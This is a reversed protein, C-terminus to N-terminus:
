AAIPLWNASQTDNVPTWNPNKILPASGTIGIAGTALTIRRDVAVTPTRGLLTVARTGPEKVSERVIVVPASGVLVAGGTPTVVEERVLTPAAGTVNLAGADPIIAVALEPAYGQLSAVGSETAIATGRDISPAAGALSAAGTQTQQVSSVYVGPVQGAIVADNAAPERRFDTITVPIVGSIALEGTGPVIGLGDVLSPAAGVAALAGTSPIIVTGDVLSPFQNAADWGGDGGWAGLGWSHDFTLSGSLPTILTSTAPVVTPAAGAFALNDPDGAYVAFAIKAAPADSAIAVAASDPTKVREIVAVVPASGIITAGGTPIIGTNVNPADSQASLAGSGPVVAGESGWDTLGYPVLGYGAAM